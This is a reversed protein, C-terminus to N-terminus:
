QVGPQGVQVGLDISTYGVFEARSFHMGWSVKM